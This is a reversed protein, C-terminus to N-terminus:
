SRFTRLKCKLLSFMQEAIRMSCILNSHESSQPTIKPRHLISSPFFFASWFIFLTSLGFSHSDFIHAYIIITDIDIHSHRIFIFTDVCRQDTTKEKPSRKRHRTTCAYLNILISFLRLFYSLVNCM